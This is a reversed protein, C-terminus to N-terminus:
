DNNNGREPLRNRIIINPSLHTHGIKHRHMYRNYQTLINMLGVKVLLADLNDSFRLFRQEIRNM